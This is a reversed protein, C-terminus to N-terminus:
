ATLQSKLTSLSHTLASRATEVVAALRTVEFPGVQVRVVKDAVEGLRSLKVTDDRVLHADEKSSSVAFRGSVRKDFRLAKRRLVGVPREEELPCLHARVALVEELELVGLLSPSV